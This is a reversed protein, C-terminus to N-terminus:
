RQWRWEIGMVIMEIGTRMEMGIALIMELGKLLLIARVLAMKMLIQIMIGM